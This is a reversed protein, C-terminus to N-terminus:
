EGFIVELRVLIGPMGEFDRERPFAVQPAIELFLWDWWVGRRYAVRLKAEELRNSPSTRFSTIWQYDLASKEDLRQFLRLDLDYFYGDREEFWTGAATTRFLVGQVLDRELDVATGSQFGSDSFWRLREVFRLDWSGLDVLERYRLGLTGAPRDDSIRLGIQGRLSRKGTAQFLYQLGLTLDDEITDGQDAAVNDPAREDLNEESDTTDEAILSLRKGTRPLVLRLKPRVEFGVGDGQDAFTDFRLRLRTKNLEAEYRQDSFFEDIATASGRLGSEVAGHLADIFGGGTKKEEDADGPEQTQSGSAEPVVPRVDSASLPGPLAVAALLVVALGLARM